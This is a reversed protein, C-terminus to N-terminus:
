CSSFAVKLCVSYNYWSEFGIIINFRYYGISKITGDKGSKLGIFMHLVGVMNTLLVSSAYQSLSPECELCLYCGVVWDYLGDM